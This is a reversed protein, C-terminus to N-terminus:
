KKNQQEKLVEQLEKQYKKGVELMAAMQDKGSKILEQAEEAMKLLLEPKNDLIYELLERQEQPLKKLQTKLATKLAGTKLKAGLNGFMRIKKISIFLLLKYSFNLFYIGFFLSRM